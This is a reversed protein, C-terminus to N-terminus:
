SLWRENVAANSRYIFLPFFLFLILGYQTEFISENLTYALLLLVLATLETNRKKFAMILLALCILCFAFLGLIGSQLISELFQNHTNYGLFGHDKRAPDGVYMNAEIYKKDLAKQADGPSVGVLWAKEETLIEAVFRWELLRFQVGNFYDGPNFNKEQIMGIDGTIIENFRKSVPNRTLLVISVGILCVVIAGTIALRHGKNEKAARIFFFLLYLITFAIVLKSSLLILFVLYYLLLFFHLFRGFGYIKKRAAEMLFVIGIFILISFQIAHELVPVVLSHYFFLSNNGTTWYKVAANGLCFSIVLGLLICYYQMVRQRFNENLYNNFLLTFPIVILASKTQLHVLTQDVDSTYLLGAAQVLYFLICAFFFLNGKNKALWNGTEVKNRILGTVAIMGLSISSIGRIACLTSFLFILYLFFIFSNPAKSSTQQLRM